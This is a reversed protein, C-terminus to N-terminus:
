PDNYKTRITYCSPPGGQYPAPASPVTQNPKTQFLVAENRAFFLLFPDDNAYLYGKQKKSNKTPGQLV